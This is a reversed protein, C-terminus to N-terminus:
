YDEVEIEMDNYGMPAEDEALEKIDEYSTADSVTFEKLVTYAVFVQKM